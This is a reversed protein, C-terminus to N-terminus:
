RRASETDLRARAIQEIGLIARALREYDLREPTDTPRHYHSYRFPATDTLMIAPVGIQWFSWHDSWGVGQLDGSLVLGESPLRAHMRFVNISSRLYNASEDNGVFGLFNGSSPFFVSVVGPYQQTGSLDSYYGLTELSLMAAVKRHQQDLHQAYRYSGMDKTQFYPPEENTFWVLRLEHALRVRHLRKALELLCAVGTANDNAGPTGRASDYHAGLVLIPATGTPGPFIAEINHMLEGGLAYTQRTSPVDLQRLRGEIWDAAADLAAIHAVNREGIGVALFRVDRELDRAIQSEQRSLEPLPGSFSQGPMRVTAWWFAFVASGFLVGVLLPLRPIDRLPRPMRNFM